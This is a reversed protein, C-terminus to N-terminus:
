ARTFSQLYLSQIFLHMSTKSTHREISLVLGLALSRDHARNYSFSLMQSYHLLNLSPSHVHILSLVDAYLPYGTGLFFLYYTQTYIVSSVHDVGAYWVCGNFAFSVKGCPISTTHRPPFGMAVFSLVLPTLTLLILLTSNELKRLLIPLWFLLLM